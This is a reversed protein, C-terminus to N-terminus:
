PYTFWRGPAPTFVRRSACLWAASSFYTHLSDLDFSWLKLWCGVSCLSLCKSAGAWLGVGGRCDQVCYSKPQPGDTSSSCPVSSIFKQQTMGLHWATHSTVECLALLELLPLAPGQECTPCLFSLEPLFAGPRVGLTGQFAAPHPVYWPSQLSKNNLGMQNM